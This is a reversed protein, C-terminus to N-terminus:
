TTQRTLNINKNSLPSISLSSKQIPFYFRKKKTLQIKQPEQPIRIIKKDFYEFVQFGMSFKLHGSYEMSDGFFLFRNLFRRGPDGNEGYFFEFFGDSVLLIFALGPLELLLIDFNAYCYILGEFDLLREGTEGTEVL